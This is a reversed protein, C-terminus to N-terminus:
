NKALEVASQEKTIFSEYIEEFDAVILKPRGLPKGSAKYIAIAEAQRQMTTEVEYEAIAASIYTMLKGAPTDSKYDEKLSILKVSKEDLIDLIKLFDRLNRGLRSFSDIVLTDGERLFELMQNLVPRNKSSKGSQVEEFAKSIDYKSSLLNERQRQIDQTATSIRAYSIYAMIDSREKFNKEKTDQGSDFLCVKNSSLNIGNELFVIQLFTGFYHM